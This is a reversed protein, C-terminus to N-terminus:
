GFPSRVAFLEDTATGKPFPNYPKETRSEALRMVLEMERARTRRAVSPDMPRWHNTLQRDRRGGFM